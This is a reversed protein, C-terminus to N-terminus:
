KNELIHINLPPRILVWTQNQLLVQYRAALHLTTPESCISISLAFPKCIKWCQHAIFHRTMISPRLIIPHTCKSCSLQTPPIISIIQQTQTTYITLNVILNLGDLNTSQHTNQFEKFNLPDQAQSPSETM